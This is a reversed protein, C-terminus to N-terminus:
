ACIYYLLLEPVQLWPPLIYKIHYRSQIAMKIKVAHVCVRARVCVCVCDSLLSSSFRFDKRRVIESFSCGIM